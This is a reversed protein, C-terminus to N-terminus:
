RCDLGHVFLQSIPTFFSFIHFTSLRLAPSILFLLFVDSVTVKHCQRFAQLKVDKAFFPFFINEKGSKQKNVSIFYIEIWDVGTTKWDQVTDYMFWGVSPLSKRM